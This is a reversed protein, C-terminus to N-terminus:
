TSKNKGIGRSAHPNSFINGVGVNNNFCFFRIQYRKDATFTVAYYFEDAVKAGLSCDVRIGVLVRFCVVSILWRWFCYFKKKKKRCGLSM